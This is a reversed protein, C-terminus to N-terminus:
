PCSSFGIDPCCVEVTNAAAMTVTAAKSTNHLGADTGSTWFGWDFYLANATEGHLAIVTGQEFASVIQYSVVPAAGAVNVSCWELDNNITLSGMTEYGGVFIEDGDGLAAHVSMMELRQGVHADAPLSAAILLILWGARVIAHSM